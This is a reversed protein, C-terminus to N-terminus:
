RYPVAQDDPIQMAMPLYQQYVAVAGQLVAQPLPEAPVPPPPVHLPGLPKKM